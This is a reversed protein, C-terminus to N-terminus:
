WSEGRKPWNPSRLLGPSMWQILQVRSVLLLLGIDADWQWSSWDAGTLTWVRRHLCSSHLPFVQCLDGRRCDDIVKETVTELARTNDHCNEGQIILASHSLQSCTQIPTSSLCDPMATDFEFTLLSPFAPQERHCWHLPFLTCQRTKDWRFLSCRLCTDISPSSWLETIFILDNRQLVTIKRRM